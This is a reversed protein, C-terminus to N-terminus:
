ILERCVVLDIVKYIGDIIGVVEFNGDKGKM